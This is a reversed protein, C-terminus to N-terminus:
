FEFVYKIQNGYIPHYRVHEGILNRGNNGIIHKVTDDAAFVGSDIIIKRIEEADTIIIKGDSVVFKKSFKSRNDWIFIECQEPLNTEIIINEEEKRVDFDVHFEMGKEPLKRQMSSPLPPIEGMRIQRGNYYWTHSIDYSFQKPSIMFSMFSVVKQEAEPLIPM